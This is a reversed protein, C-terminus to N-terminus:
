SASRGRGGALAELHGELALAPQQIWGESPLRRRPLRADPPPSPLMRPPQAARGISLPPAAHRAGTTPPSGRTSPRELLQALRHRVAPRSGPSMSTRRTSVSASASPGATRRSAWSGPRRRPCGAAPSLARRASRGRRGGARRGRRAAARGRRVQAVRQGRRARFSSWSGDVCCRWRSRRGPAPRRGAPCRPRRAVREGARALGATTTKVQLWQGYASAQCSRM